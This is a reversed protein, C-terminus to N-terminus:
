RTANMTQEVVVVPGLFAWSFTGWLMISGGSAQAHGVACQPLLQEGPLRRIRIHGYQIPNDVSDSHPEPKAESHSVTESSMKRQYRTSVLVMDDVTPKVTM